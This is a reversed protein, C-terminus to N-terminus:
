LNKLLSLITRLDHSEPHERLFSFFRQRAVLKTRDSAVYPFVEFTEILDRLLNEYHNTLAHFIRQFGADDTHIFGQNLYFLHEKDPQEITSYFIIRDMKGFQLFCYSLRYMDCLVRLHSVFDEKESSKLIM